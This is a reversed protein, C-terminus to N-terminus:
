PLQGTDRPLAPAGIMHPPPQAAGPASSPPLLPSAGTTEGNERSVAQLSLVLLLLLRLCLCASLPSSLRRPSLEATDGGRSLSDCSEGSSAYRWSSAIASTSQNDQRTRPALRWLLCVPYHRDACHRSGREGPAYFRNTHLLRHLPGYM